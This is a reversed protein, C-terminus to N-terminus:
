MGGILFRYMARDYEPQCLDDSVYGDKLAKKSMAGMSKDMDQESNSKKNDKIKPDYEFDKM